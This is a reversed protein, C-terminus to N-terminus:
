FVTMCTFTFSFFLILYFLLFLFLQFLAFCVFLCFLTFWITLSFLVYVFLSVHEHVCSNGLFVLSSSRVYM